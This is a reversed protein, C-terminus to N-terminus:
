KYHYIHISLRFAKENEQKGNRFSPQLALDITSEPATYQLYM